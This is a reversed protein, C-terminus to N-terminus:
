RPVTAWAIAVKSFRIGDCRSLDLGRSFGPAEQTLPFGLFVKGANRLIKKVMRRLQEGLSLLLPRLERGDSTNGAEYKSSAFLVKLLIM